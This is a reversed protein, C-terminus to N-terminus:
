KNSYHEVLEQAISDINDSAFNCGKLMMCKKCADFNQYGQAMKARFSNAAKSHWVDYMSNKSADGITFPRAGEACTAVIGDPYVEMKYFAYPCVKINSIEEGRQSLNTNKLQEKGKTNEYLENYNEINIVDCIPEFIKYFLEKKEETNVIFNFTKIYIKKDGKNKYLYTLNEVYKEFDVKAQAYNMFDESSLGNVSIRIVNVKTKLIKDATENTMLIGNTHMDYKEAIEIDGVYQLMEPLHKNTLPEGSGCFHIAKIKQPFDKVSDAMQKFTELSLMKNILHKYCPENSSHMCCICKINCYTSACFDISLPTELPLLNALQKREYSQDGTILIGKITKTEM